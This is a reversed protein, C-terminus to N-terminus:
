IRWVSLASLVPPGCGTGGAADLAATQPSLVLVAPTPGGPTVGRSPPAVVAPHGPVTLQCMHGPHDHSPVPCDGDTSPCHRGPEGATVWVRDSAVMDPDAHSAAVDPGAHGTPAAHVAHGHAGTTVGGVLQHMFVLGTLAALVVLTPAWPLM